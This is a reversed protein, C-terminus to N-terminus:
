IIKGIIDAVCKDALKSKKEESEIRIRDIEEIALRSIEKSGENFEKEKEAIKQNIIAIVRKKIISM